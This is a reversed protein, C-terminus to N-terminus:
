YYRLSREARYLDNRARRMSDDLDRLERRLRRRKDENKETKLQREKSQLDSSLRSVRREAEYVRYAPRYRDLFATELEAPCANRYHNGLRGQRAGNDPTCYERIGLNHGLRYLQEKPVVGVKACAERHQAIYDHHQGNRGDRVGREYWDATLCEEESMSACGALIAVALLLGPRACRLLLKPM